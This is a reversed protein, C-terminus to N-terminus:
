PAIYGIIVPVASGLRVHNQSSNNALVQIRSSLVHVAKSNAECTALQFLFHQILDRDCSPIPDDIGRGWSPIYGSCEVAVDRGGEMFGAESIVQLTM